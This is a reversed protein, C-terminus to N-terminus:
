EIPEIGQTREYQIDIVKQIKGQAAYSTYENNGHVHAQNGSIGGNLDSTEWYGIPPADPGAGLAVGLFVHGPVLVFFARMGLAEAASALIATTEVCMGTPYRASLVDQPLKIRQVADLSYPINDQAYTVHYVSQLTDFIANIQNTVDQPSADGAGYGFLGSTGPYSGSHQQLWQASRGILDAIVPAHPTVWGALYPSNDTGTAPDYWHMYQRSMLKVPVTTDCPAASDSEVRLEIQADRQGPSVLADLVTNDLLPPKFSLDQFAPAAQAEIMQVQTFHPVSVSIHLEQPTSSRFRLSLLNPQNVYLGTYVTKPPSWTILTGCPGLPAIQYNANALHYKEFLRMGMTVYGTGGAVLVLMIIGLSLYRRHVGGKKM